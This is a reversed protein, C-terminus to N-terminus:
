PPRTVDAHNIGQKVYKLINKREILHTKNQKTKEHKNDFCIKWKLSIEYVLFIMFDSDWGGLSWGKKISECAEQVHTYM